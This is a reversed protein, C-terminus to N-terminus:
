EKGNELMKILQQRGRYLQIKITGIPLGTAQKIEEHSYGKIKKTDSLTM